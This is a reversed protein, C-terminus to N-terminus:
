DMGMLMWVVSYSSKMGISPCPLVEADLGLMRQTCLKETGQSEYTM